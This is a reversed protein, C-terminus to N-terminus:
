MHMEMNLTGETWKTYANLVNKQNNTWNNYKSLKREWLLHPRPLVFSPGGQCPTTIEVQLYQLKM